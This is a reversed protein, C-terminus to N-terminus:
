FILKLQRFMVPFCAELSHLHNQIFSIIMTVRKPKLHAASDKLNAIQLTTDTEMKHKPWNPFQISMHKHQEKTLLCM